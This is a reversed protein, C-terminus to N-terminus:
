ETPKSPKRRKALKEGTEFYRGTLAKAAEEINEETWQSLRYGHWPEKLDLPPLGLSLVQSYNDYSEVLKLRPELQYINPIGRIRKGIDAISGPSNIMKDFFVPPFFHNFCDIYRM